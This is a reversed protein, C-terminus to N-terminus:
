NQSKKELESAQTYFNYPHMYNYVNDTVKEVAVIGGIEGIDDVIGSM